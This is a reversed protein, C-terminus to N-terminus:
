ERVILHAIMVIVVITNLTKKQVHRHTHTVHKKANTLACPLSLFVGNTAAWFNMDWGSFEEPPDDPQEAYKDFNSCDEPGNIQQLLLLM